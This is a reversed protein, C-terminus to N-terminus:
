TRYSSVPWGFILTNIGLLSWISSEVAAQRAQVFVRAVVIKLDDDDLVVGGVRCRKGIVLCQGAAKGVAADDVVLACEVERGDVVEARREGLALVQQQEVVVNLHQGVVKQPFQEAVALAGVHTRHARLEVVGVVRDLVRAHQHADVAARAVAM